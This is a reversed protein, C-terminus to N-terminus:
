WEGTRVLHLLHLVAFGRVIGAQPKESAVREAGIQRRRTARSVVSVLRENLAGAARDSRPMCRRAGVLRRRDVLVAVPNDAKLWGQRADSAAYLRKSPENELRQAHAAVVPFTLKQPSAIRFTAHRTTGCRAQMWSAHEDLTRPAGLQNVQWEACSPAFGLLGDRSAPGTRAHKVIFRQL